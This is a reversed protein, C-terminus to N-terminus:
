RSRRSRRLRGKKRLDYKEIVELVKERTINLGRASLVIAIGRVSSSRARVLEALIAITEADTLPAEGYPTPLGAQRHAERRRLQEREVDCDISLYVYGRGWTIRALKKEVSLYFLQNQVRLHLLAAVENPTMGMPSHHVLGLVTQTLNGYSSFGVTRYFWLDNEDFRPTEALTYYRANHNFSTLYGLPKLHRWMTMHSWHSIERIDDFTLIKHKRLAAIVAQTIEPPSAM